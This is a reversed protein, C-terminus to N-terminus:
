NTGSSGYSGRDKGTLKEVEVINVRGMKEQIRFQAIRDEYRLVGDKLAFFEGMVIDNNGRYSEDILGFHNTLILGWKKFTSSRPIIYAEYNEPLEMAYGFSIKLIDGARYHLGSDKHLCENAVDIGKYDIDKNGMNLIKFVRLDIWDSKDGGIFELRKFDDNEYRVKIEKTM